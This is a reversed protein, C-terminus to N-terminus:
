GFQIQSFNKHKPAKYKPQEQQDRMHRFNDAVGQSPLKFRPANNPDYGLIITQKKSNIFGEAAKQSSQYASPEPPPYQGYRNRSQQLRRLEENGHEAFIASNQHTPNLIRKGVQKFEGDRGVGEGSLLNFKYDQKYAKWNDQIARDRDEGKIQRNEELTLRQADQRIDSQHRRQFGRHFRTQRLDATPYYNMETSVIQNPKLYDYNSFEATAAPLHQLILKSGPTHFIIHKYSHHM